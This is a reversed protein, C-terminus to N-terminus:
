RANPVSGESVRMLATMREIGRIIGESTTMANVLRDSTSAMQQAAQALSAMLDGQLANSRELREVLRGLLEVMQRHEDRRAQDVQSRREEEEKLAKTRISFWSRILYIAFAGLSGGGIALATNVGSGIDPAGDLPTMAGPNPALSGQGMSGAVGAVLVLAAMLIVLRLRM